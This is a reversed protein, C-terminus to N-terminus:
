KKEEEPKGDEGGLEEVRWPPTVEFPKVVAVPAAISSDPIRKSGGVSDPIRKSVGVGDPIRQSRSWQIAVEGVKVPSVTSPTPSVPSVADKAEAALVPSKATQTDNVSAEVTVEPVANVKEEEAEAVIWRVGDHISSFVHEEGVKAMLGCTVLRLSVQCPCVCVSLTM